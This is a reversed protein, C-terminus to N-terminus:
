EASRRSGSGSAEAHEGAAVAPVSVRVEFLEPQPPESFVETLKGIQRRYFGSAELRRSDAAEDWLIIIAGHGSEPDVLMSAGRFGAQERLEPLALQQFIGVADDIRDRKIRLTVHRAHM